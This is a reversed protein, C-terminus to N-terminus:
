VDGSEKLLEQIGAVVADVSIQDMCVDSTCPGGKCLACQASDPQFIKRKATWPGWRVPSCQLIPPYMGVVPTGAAAAIHLPGTSNSIFVRARRFLAALETLSLLGACEAPKPAMAEAVRHVLDKENL